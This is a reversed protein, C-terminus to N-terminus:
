LANMVHDSFKGAHTVFNLIFLEMVLFEDYLRNISRMNITM